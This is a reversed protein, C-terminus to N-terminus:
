SRRSSRTGRTRPSRRRASGRRPCSCLYAIPSYLRGSAFLSVQLATFIIHRSSSSRILLMDVGFKERWEIWSDYDEQLFTNGDILYEHRSFGFKNNIKQLEKRYTERWDAATEGRLLPTYLAPKAAYM